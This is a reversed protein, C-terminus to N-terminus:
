IKTKTLSLESEGKTIRDRHRCTRPRRRLSPSLDSTSWSSADKEGTVARRRRARRGTERDEKEAV